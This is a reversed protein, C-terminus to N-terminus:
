RAAGLYADIVRADSRITDPPGEAIVRGEAMVIVRDSNDMVVDMNHEVFLCTLGQTRRQEAIYKLLRRGLTPNVGAMPEDLLVLRPEAMLVRALDLLKRQGASLTGAYDGAKDALDFRALLELARARIAAERRMAAWSGLGLRGLV